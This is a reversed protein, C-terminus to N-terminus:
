LALLMTNVFLTLTSSRMSLILLGFYFVVFFFGKLVLGFIPPLTFDGVYYNSNADWVRKKFDGTTGNM